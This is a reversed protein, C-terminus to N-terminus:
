KALLYWFNRTRVAARRVVRKHDALPDALRRIVEDRHPVLLEYPLSSGVAYLCQLAGVRVQVTPRFTTLNLFADILAPLNARVIEKQDTALSEFVPLVAAVVQGDSAKLSLMLIPLLTGMEPQLVATPVAGVLHGLVRVYTSAGLTQPQPDSTHQLDFGARLSPLVWTLLRQASLPKVRANLDKSTSWDQDNTLMTRLAEVAATGAAPDALLACLEMAVRRAASHNALLLGRGVFGLVVISNNRSRTDKAADTSMALVGARAGEGIIKELLPDSGKSVFRNVIVGLCRGLVVVDAEAADDFLVALLKVTLRMFVVETHGHNCHTWWDAQSGALLGLLCHLVSTPFPGDGDRLVKKCCMSIFPRSADAGLTAVAYAVGNAVLDPVGVGPLTPAAGAPVLLLGTMLHLVETMSKQVAAHSEVWESRDAHARTGQLATRCLSLVAQAARTVTRGRDDPGSASPIMSAALLPALKACSKPGCRGIAEACSIALFRDAEAPSQYLKQRFTPLVSALILGLREKCLGIESLVELVHSKVSEDQDNWLASTLLEIIKTSPEEDLFLSSGTVGRLTVLAGLVSAGAKRLAPLSDHLVSESALVRIDEGYPEFPHPSIAPVDDNAFVITLARNSASLLDFVLGMGSVKASLADRDDTEAPQHKLRESLSPLCHAFVHSITRWSGAIITSMAPAISRPTAGLLASKTSKCAAVVLSDLALTGDIATTLSRITWLAEARIKPEVMPQIEANLAQWLEPVHPLIAEVDYKPLCIRLTQLCDMKTDLLSSSLKEAVMPIVHPAAAPVSFVERLADILCERTIGHPDNPAPTFTIPFYCCTVDTLNAVEDPLLMLSSLVAATTTFVVLLNRPDQEGDIAHVFADVFQSRGKADNKLSGVYANLFTKALAFADCRESQMLGQVSGDKLAICVAHLAVEYPLSQCRLLTLLGRIAAGASPFDVVRASFFNSFHIFHEASIKKDAELYKDLVLALVATARARKSETHSVLHEEMGKVLTTVDIIQDEVVAKCVRILAQDRILEPNEDSCYSSVDRFVSAAM